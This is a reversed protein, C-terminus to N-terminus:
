RWGAIVEAAAATAQARHSIRNKEEAPIEALTVGRDPLIFIPDYAFGGSGRPEHAIVGRLTGFVVQTEHGPRALAIACVFQAGRQEDPVDRLENLLRRFYRQPDSQDGTNWRATYIGPAGDLADAELGSDDALTPLGSMACYAEAKLIANAAFTTGTEEVDADIGVDSLSVVEFGLQELMARYERLKGQNTTAILLREM